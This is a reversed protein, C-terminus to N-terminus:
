LNHLEPFNVEMNTLEKGMNMKRVYIVVIDGMWMVIHEVDNEDQVGEGEHFKKIAIEKLMDKFEERDVYCGVYV